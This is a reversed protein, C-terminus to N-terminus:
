LNSFVSSACHRKDCLCLSFNFPGFNIDVCLRLMGEKIEWTTGNADEGLRWLLKKGRCQRGVVEAAESFKM